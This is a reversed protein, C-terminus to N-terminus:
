GGGELCVLVCVRFASDLIKEPLFISLWSVGMWLVPPGM